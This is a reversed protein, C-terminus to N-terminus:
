SRHSQLFSSIRLLQGRIEVPTIDHVGRWVCVPVSERKGKKFHRLDATKLIGPTIGTILPSEFQILFLTADREM